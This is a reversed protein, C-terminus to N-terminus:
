ESMKKNLYASDWSHNITAQQSQYDKKLLREQLKVEAILTTLYAMKNNRKKALKLTTLEDNKIFQHAQRTATYKRIGLQTLAEIGMTVASYLSERYIHDIHHDILDYADTRNKARTLIKLHPYHIRLTEIIQLNVKSNGIASIFLKANKCGAAELIELRAADGYHVEFGMKNLSNIQELDIDLITAKIKNARLLRGVTSGFHGFGAIIVPNHEEAVESGMEKKSEKIKLIPFILHDCLLQLFPTSLMSIAIIAMIQNGLVPPILQIQVSFGMIVFGFEGAQSLGIGFSINQFMEKKYIRSTIFSVIFKVITLIVGFILIFLPDELILHFNITAGVGIFFLGLLLGKFPEIDSKLEHRFESNALVVGALFTGLAPSLGILFMLCSISAVLLLTSATFLEKLHTRAMIKFLLVFLYRGSFYIASIVSVIILVQLWSPYNNTLTQNIKTSAPISNVLLPLFALIPIVAIDQFILVAFSSKGVSSNQLGKEALSQLVITSSSLSLTLSIALAIKWNWNTFLLFGIFLFLSTGFLQMSGMGLFVKRMKWFKSPEMELGILFLMMVIGFEAFHMIDQGDHDILGLVFPGIIIGAFLYGLISSMGLKKAIPVCLVTASLYIIARFLFHIEM